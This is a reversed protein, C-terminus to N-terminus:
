DAHSEKQVLLDCLYISIRSRALELPSFVVKRWQKGTSSKITM